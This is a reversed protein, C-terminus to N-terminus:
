GHRFPQHAPQHMADGHTVPTDVQQKIRQKDGPDRQHGFHQLHYNDQSNRPREVLRQPQHFM